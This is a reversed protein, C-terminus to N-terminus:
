AGEAAQATPDTPMASIPPGYIQEYRRISGVLLWAVVLVGVLLGFLCVRLQTVLGFFLGATTAAADTVPYAYSVTSALAGFLFLSLTATVVWFGARARTGCIEVLLSALHPRLVVVTALSVALGLLVGLAFTTVISM